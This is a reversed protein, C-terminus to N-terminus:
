TIILIALIALVALITTHMVLRLIGSSFHPSRSLQRSIYHQYCVLLLTPSFDHMIYALFTFSHYFSSDAPRADILIVKYSM